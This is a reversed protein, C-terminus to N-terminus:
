WWRKEGCLCSRRLGSVRGGVGKIVRLSFEESLVIRVEDAGRHLQVGNSGGKALSNVM